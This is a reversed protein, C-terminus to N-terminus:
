EVRKIMRGGFGIAWPKSDKRNHYFWIEKEDGKVNITGVYRTVPKIQYVKDERIMRCQLTNQQVFLELEMGEGSKFVGSRSVLLESPWNRQYYSVKSTDVHLGLLINVIGHWAKYVPFGRLNSLVVVALEEEPIFGAHSSVGTLSGGHQILTRGYYNSQIWSGLNYTSVLDWPSYTVPHLLKQISSKTLIRNDPKLGQRGGLALMQFFKVLDRATSRLWGGAQYPPAEQWGQAKKVEETNEDYYYLSTVNDSHLVEDLSFTSRNMNLPKLFNESIYDQYSKGSVEEIIKGLLAYCDNSYSTYEGPSGLLDIGERSVYDILDQYSNLQVQEEENNNETKDGLKQVLEDEHESNERISYILAKLPPLGTTHTLMNLITTDRLDKKRGFQLQPLFTQVSDDLSLKGQEQLKLIAAATFTKTISAIGMITNEDIYAKEGLDRYGFGSAYILEDGKTIAVALGPSDHDRQVNALFSELSKLERQSLKAGFDM